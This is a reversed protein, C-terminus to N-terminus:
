NAVALGPIVVPGDLPSVEILTVKGVRAAYVHLDGCSRPLAREYKARDMFVIVQKEDVRALLADTKESFVDATNVWGVLTVRPNPTFTLAEGLEDHTYQRFEADDACVKYPMFGQQVIRTYAADPEVLPVQPARNLWFNLSALSAILLAAAIGLWTRLGWGTGTRGTPNQLPQSSESPPTIRLDAPAAFSKKLSADIRHQANIQERLASDVGARQEVSELEAPTM